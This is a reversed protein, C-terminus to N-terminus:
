LCEMKFIQYSCCIQNAQQGLAANSVKWVTDSPSTVWEGNCEGSGIGEQVTLCASKQALTCNVHVWLWSHSRWHLGWTWTIFGFLHTFPHGVLLPCECFNEQPQVGPSRIRCARCSSCVVVRLWWWNHCAFALWLEGQTLLPGLYLMSTVRGLDM